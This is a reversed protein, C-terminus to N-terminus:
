LQGRRRRARRLRQRLASQKARNGCIAMSCWRRAGSHTRDLFFLVCRSGACGKVRTFDEECVLDALTSALPLLLTDPSRWRRQAQRELVSRGEQAHPRPRAVIRGFAEDRALLANL